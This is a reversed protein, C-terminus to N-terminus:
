WIWTRGSYERLVIAEPGFVYGEPQLSIKIKTNNSLMIVFAQDPEVHADVVVTDICECLANKYEKENRNLSVREREIMPDVIATLVADDFGLQIYDKVFAVSILSQGHLWKLDV